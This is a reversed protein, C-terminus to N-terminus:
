LTYRFPFVFEILEDVMPVVDFTAVSILVAMVANINGPMTLNFLPLYVVM